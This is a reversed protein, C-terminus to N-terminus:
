LEDTELTAPEKAWPMWQHLMDWTEAKADFVAKGDGFRPERIVLRETEIPLPLDILIPNQTDIITM